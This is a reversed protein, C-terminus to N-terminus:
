GGNQSDVSFTGFEGYIETKSIVLLMKDFKLIVFYPKTESVEIINRTLHHHVLIM